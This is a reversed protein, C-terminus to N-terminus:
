PELQAYVERAIAMVDAAGADASLAYGFREDVWYFAAQDGDHTARFATQGPGHGPDFVAVYLTMRRGQNNEYMFQARPSGEGPLLRGGLLHYGSAALTPVKLTAGLRRSLWQVLHAEDAAAVEVPHRKEPVFVAHALAAERVFGPTVLGAGAAQEPATDPRSATYHGGAAGLTLLLAVAAAQVWGRRQRDRRAASLVTATIADGGHGLDVNRAIERLQMAQAQWQRVREADDGHAQLWALVAAVRAAPLQGDVFAHLDDVPVPEPSENM